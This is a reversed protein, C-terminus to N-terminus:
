FFYVGAYIIVIIINHKNGNYIKYTNNKNNDKEMENGLIKYIVTTMTDNGFNGKHGEVTTTINKYTKMITVNEYAKMTTTKNEHSTMSEVTTENQISTTM